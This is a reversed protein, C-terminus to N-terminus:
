PETQARAAQEVALIEDDSPREDLTLGLTLEAGARYVSLEVRDGAKHAALATVLESYRSIKQGDFGIVIDGQQVGAAECCSGATVSQVMPGVPLGYTAATTGDLDRLTVGLYARGMVRGFQRLDYAVRLVDRIPIAFGLGEINTGSSSFGSYKATTMGIINGNMDFLPGGSNGSNIAADTQLMSIPRGDTSVERDLASVYGATMTFTLKGLPNGIAIVEEGVEVADSDGVAVCSLGEADIKLLAVDNLSDRGILQAELERGDYLGVLIAQAGEIVHNNTIVYGDESLVFGSGACQAGTQGSLRTSIGCSADVNMKYVQAPTLSKGADYTKLTEPLPSLALEYPEDAQGLAEDTQAAVPAAQPGNRRELASIAEGLAARGLGALIALALLLATIKLGTGRRKPTQLQAEPQTNEDEPEAEFTYRMAEKQDDM